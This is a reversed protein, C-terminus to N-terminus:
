FDSSRAVEDGFGGPFPSKVEKRVLPQVRLVPLKLGGMAQSPTLADTATNGDEVM